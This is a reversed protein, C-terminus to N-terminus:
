AAPARIRQSSSLAGLLIGRMRGERMLTEAVGSDFADLGIVLLRRDSM